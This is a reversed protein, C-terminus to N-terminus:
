LAATLSIGTTEGGAIVNSTIHYYGDEVTFRPDRRTKALFSSMYDTKLIEGGDTRDENTRKQLESHSANWDAVCRSAFAM